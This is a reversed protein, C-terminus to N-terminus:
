AVANGGKRHHQLFCTERAIQDVPVHAFDALNDVLAQWLMADRGDAGQKVIRGYSMTATKAALMGFTRYTSPLRGPDIRMLVFGVIPVTWILIPWIIGPRRDALPFSLAVAIIGWVVMTLFGVVAGLALVAGARGIWTFAPRPVQLGTGVELCRVFGRTYLRRLSALDDSPTCQINARLENAARRLRYFAMATPCKRGADAVDIKSRLLDFMDGVTHVAAAEADSIHVDFAAELARVAEIDDGDDDLGLTTLM